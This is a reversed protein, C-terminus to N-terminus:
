KSSRMLAWVVTVVSIGMAAFFLIVPLFGLVDVGWGFPGAGYRGSGIVSRLTGSIALLGMLAVFLRLASSMMLRKRPGDVAEEPLPKPYEQRRAKVLGWVGAGLHPAVALVGIVIFVWDLLERVTGGAWFTLTLLKVVLALVMLVLALKSWVPMKSVCHNHLRCARLLFGM